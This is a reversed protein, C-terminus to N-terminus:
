FNFHLLLHKCEFPSSLEETSKSDSDCFILDFVNVSNTIVVDLSSINIFMTILFSREKWTFEVLIKLSPFGFPLNIHIENMAVKESKKINQLKVQMCDKLQFAITHIKDM